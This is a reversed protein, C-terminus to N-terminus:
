KYVHIYEHSLIIINTAVSSCIFFLAMGLLWLSIRGRRVADQAAHQAEDRAVRCVNLLEGDRATAAAVDNALQTARATEVLLERVAAQVATVASYASEEAKERRGFAESLHHDLSDHRELLEKLSKRVTIVSEDTAGVEATLDDLRKVTQTASVGLGDLAACVPRLPTDLVRSLLEGLEQEKKAIEEPPAGLNIPKIENM